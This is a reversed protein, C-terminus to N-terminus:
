PWKLGMQEQALASEAETAKTMPCTGIQKMPLLLFITRTWMKTHPIQFSFPPKTQIPTLAEEELESFYNEKNRRGKQLTQWRM